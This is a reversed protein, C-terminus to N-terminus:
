VPRREVISKRSGYWKEGISNCLFSISWYLPIHALYYGSFMGLVFGDAFIILWLLNTKDVAVLRWGQRFSIIIFTLLCITGIIGTEVLADTFLNHTYIGLLSFVSGLGHGLLPSEAFLGFADERLSDRNSDMLNLVRQFGNMELTSNEAYDVCLKGAILVVLLVAVIQIQSKLSLKRTSFYFFGMALLLMSFLVLGGRGGALMITLFNVIVLM